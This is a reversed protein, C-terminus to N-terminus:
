QLFEETPLQTPASLYDDISLESTRTWRIMTIIIQVPRAGHSNPNGKGPLRLDVKRPPVRGGLFTCFRRSVTKEPIIFLSDIIKHRLLSELVMQKIFDTLYTHSPVEENMDSSHSEEEECLPHAWKEVRPGEHPCGM